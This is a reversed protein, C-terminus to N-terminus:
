RAVKVEDRGVVEFSMLRVIGDGSGMVEGRTSRNSADTGWFADWLFNGFADDQGRVHAERTGAIGKQALYAYDKKTGPFAAPEALILLHEIGVTSDKIRIGGNRIATTSDFTEGPEITNSSRDSGPYSLSVEGDSSLYLVNIHIPSDSRNRLRFNILDGDRFQPISGVADLPTSKGSRILQYALDIQVHPATNSASDAAKLLARARVLRGLSDRIAAYSETQSAAIGISPIASSSGCKQAGVTMGSPPLFWLCDGEVYLRVDAQENAKVWDVRAFGEKALRDIASLVRKASADGPGGLRPRAVRVSFRLVPKVMRAYAMENANPTVGPKSPVIPKLALEASFPESRVVRARATAADDRSAPTPVVLLEAGETVESFSGAEVFVKDDTVTVPWQRIPVGGAGAQGLVPEDLASGSYVPTPRKGLPQLAYRQLIYDGLQRYTMGDFSAMASALRYSLVGHRKRDPDTASGERPMIMEPAEEWPQAAYFAVYHGKGEAAPERLALSDSNALPEGRTSASAAAVEKFAGAPIDLAEASVGRMIVGDEEGRMQSASHCADFVAWVFVGNDLFRKLRRGFEYDIIANDVTEKDQNWRGTDIPLFLESKGDPEPDADSPLNRAPQQAGHGSFHLYVFDGKRSRAVLADLESLINARTPLRAGPSDDTLLTIDERQFGKTLLLDRITLVDNRAGELAKFGSENPYASTGVLFAHKAAWATQGAALMMALLSVCRVKLCLTM